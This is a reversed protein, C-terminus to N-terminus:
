HIVWAPSGLRLRVYKKYHSTKAKQKEIATTKEELEVAHQAKLKQITKVHDDGLRLKKAQWEQERAQWQQERSSWSAMEEAARDTSTTLERTLNVVQKELTANQTTLTEIQAQATTANEKFSTLRAAYRLRKRLSNLARFM